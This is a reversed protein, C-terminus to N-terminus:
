RRSLLFGVIFSVGAVVAVSQLPNERVRDTAHDVTNDFHERARAYYAQGQESADSILDQAQNSFRRYAYQARSAAENGKSEAIQRLTKGIEAFDKRFNEIDKELKEVRPDSM